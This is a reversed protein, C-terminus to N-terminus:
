FYNHPHSVKLSNTGDCGLRVDVHMSSSRIREYKIWQDEDLDPMDFMGSAVTAVLQQLQETM